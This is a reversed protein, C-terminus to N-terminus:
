AAVSTHYSVPINISQEIDYMNRFCHPCSCCWWCRSFKNSWIRNEIISPVIVTLPLGKVKMHQLLQDTSLFELWDCSLIYCSSYLLSSLKNSLFVISLLSLNRDLSQRLYIYTKKPIPQQIHKCITKTITKLVTQLCIPYCVMSWWSIHNNTMVIVCFIKM